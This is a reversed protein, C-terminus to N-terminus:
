IVEIKISGEYGWVKQAAFHWVCADNKYCADLLAKICNDLDPKQQHPAGEMQAKKKKSWSKPMPLTFTIAACCDPVKVGHARVQDKFAYYKEVAPRRKWRDRRTMRPKGIPTIPYHKTM